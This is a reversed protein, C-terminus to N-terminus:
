SLSGTGTGTGTGTGVVPAPNTQALATGTVNITAPAHTTNVTTSVTTTVTATTVWQLIADAYGQAKQQIVVETIPDIIAPSINSRAYADLITQREVEVLASVLTPLNATLTSM